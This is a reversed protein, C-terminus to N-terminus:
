RRNGAVHGEIFGLRIREREQHGDGGLILARAGRQYLGVATNFDIAAAFVSPAGRDAVSPWTVAPSYRRPRYCDAPALHSRAEHLERARAGTAEDQRALLGPFPARLM